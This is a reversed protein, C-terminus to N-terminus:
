EDASAQAIAGCQGSYLSLIKLVGGEEGADGPVMGGLREQETPM